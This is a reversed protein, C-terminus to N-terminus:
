QNSMSNFIQQLIVIFETFIKNKSTLFELRELKSSDMSIWTSKNQGIRNATHTYDNTFNTSIKVIYEYHKYANDLFTILDEGTPNMPTFSMEYVYSNIEENVLLGMVIFTDFGNVSWNVETSESNKELSTIFSDIRSIINFAATEGCAERIFGRDNLVQSMSYKKSFMDWVASETTGDSNNWTYRSKLEFLSNKKDETYIKSLEALNDALRNLTHIFDNNVHMVDNRTFVKKDTTTEPVYNDMISEVVDIGISSRETTFSKLSVTSSIVKEGITDELLKIDGQSIGDSKIQNKFNNIIDQM